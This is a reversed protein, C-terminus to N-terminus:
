PTYRYAKLLRDKWKIGRYNEICSTAGREVHLMSQQSVVVGVHHEHKGIRFVLVDDLEVKTLPVQQWNHMCTSISMLNPLEINKVADYYLQILGWCRCGQFSSETSDSWPINIFCNLSQVMSM